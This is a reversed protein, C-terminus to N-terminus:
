EDTCGLDNVLLEGAQYTFEIQVLGCDAQPLYTQSGIEALNQDARLKIIGIYEEPVAFQYNDGAVTIKVQEGVIGIQTNQPRLQYALVRDGTTAGTPVLRSALNPLQLQRQAVDSYTYLGLAIAILIFLSALSYRIM